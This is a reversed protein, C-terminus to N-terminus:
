VNECILNTDVPIHIAETIELLLAEYSLKGRHGPGAEQLLKLPLMIATKKILPPFVFLHLRKKEEQASGRCM